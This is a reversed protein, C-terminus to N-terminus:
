PDVALYLLLAPPPCCSSPCTSQSSSICNAATLVRSTILIARFNTFARSHHLHLAHELMGQVLHCSSFLYQLVRGQFICLQVMLHMSHQHSNKHAMKQAFNSSVYKVLRLLLYAFYVHAYPSSCACKDLLQDTLEIRVPDEADLRKIINVSKTVLGCLKNYKKYDDRDQIHYM